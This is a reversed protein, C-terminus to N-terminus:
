SPFRAAKQAERVFDGPEITRDEEQGFVNVTLAGGEAEKKGIVVTWPIKQLASARVKKGVKESSDDLEARVNADILEALVRQAFPVAEDSVTALRVQVPALWFPFAGEYHEILVSLFREISGSIARHVMAPRKKTGDVDTYELGFREPLNFDVQITALQWERGIADRAIFDIKPGYFAAEGVGEGYPQGIELLFERLIGVARDWLEMGGLYKEM